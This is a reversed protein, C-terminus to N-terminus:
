IGSSKTGPIELAMLAFLGPNGEQSEKFFPERSDVLGVLTLLVSGLLVESWLELSADHHRWRKFCEPFRGNM